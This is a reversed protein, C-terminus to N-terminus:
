YESLQFHYRTLEDIPNKIFIGLPINFSHASEELEEHFYWAISGVFSVPFIQPYMLVNRRFFEGFCDLLFAHVQTMRRHEYIYPTFSALFRNAQPQRYVKDLIEPITLNFKEQLGDRLIEPLQGKLCDSIFRKGLYAGSGEDGLIYGLPSINQIIQKGDYLCSNSGTGLICAIGANDKCLARAAGLLDTDVAIDAEPFNNQLVHIISETKPPLCGAGYFYIATCRELPFGLQPILGQCIISEIKEASQHFPNIGETQIIKCNSIETGYCWDTKTSGSDAILIM